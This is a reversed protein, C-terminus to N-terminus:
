LRCWHLTFYDGETGFCVFNIIACQLDHSIFLFCGVKDDTLVSYCGKTALSSYKPYRFMLVYVTILMATSM